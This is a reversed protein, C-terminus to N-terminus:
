RLKKPPRTAKKQAQRRKWNTDPTGKDSAIYGGFANSALALLSYVGAYSYMGPTNYYVPISMGFLVGVALFFWWAFGGAKGAFFGCLLSGLPFVALLLVVLVTGDGTLKSLAPGLGFLVAMVVLHPWEKQLTKM